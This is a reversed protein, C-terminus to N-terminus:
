QAVEAFHAFACQAIEFVGPVFNVNAPVGNKALEFDALALFLGLGTENGGHEGALFGCLSGAELDKREIRGGKPPRKLKLGIKVGVHALNGRTLLARKDNRGRIGIQITTMSSPIISPM